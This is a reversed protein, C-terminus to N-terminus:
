DDDPTINSNLFIFDIVTEVTDADTQWSTIPGSAMVKTKQINVNLSNLDKIPGSGLPGSNVILFYLLSFSASIGRNICFVLLTGSVPRARNM